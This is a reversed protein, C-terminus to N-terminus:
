FSDRRIICVKKSPEDKRKLFCHASFFDFSLFTDVLADFKIREDIDCKDRMESPLQFRLSFSALSFCSTMQTCLISAFFFNTCNLGMLRSYNKAACIPPFYSFISFTSFLM